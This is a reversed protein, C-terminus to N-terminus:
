ERELFVYIISEGSLYDSIKGKVRYSSGQLVISEAYDILTNDFSASVDVARCAVWVDFPEFQGAVGYTVRTGDKLVLGTKDIVLFPVRYSPSMDNPYSVLIPDPYLGSMDGSGTEYMSDQTIDEGQINITGVVVSSEDFFSATYNKYLGRLYDLM